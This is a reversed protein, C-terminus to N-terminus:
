ITPEGKALTPRNNHTIEIEFLELVFLLSSLRNLYPLIYINEIEGQHYLKVIRREARRIITRAMSLVASSQSDGPIIFENPIMIRETIEDARSELYTIHREGISRFNAANEPTSAVEAMLGYLDRQIHLLIEKIEESNTIARALGLTATAEDIEGYAAPRPHYKPVRDKGLISTYGDDGSRTYFKRM